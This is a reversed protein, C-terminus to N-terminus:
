SGPQRGNLDAEYNVVIAEFTQNIMTVLDAPAFAEPNGGARVLFQQGAFSLSFWCLFLCHQWDTPTVFESFEKAVGLHRRYLETAAQTGHAYQSAFAYHVYREEQDLAQLMQRVNPVKKPQFAKRYKSPLAAAVAGHFRHLTDAMGAFFTNDRGISSLFTATDSYFAERKACMRLWRMEREYPDEPQLMWRVTIGTEFAARAMVMAGPLLVLDHRALMTVAEINRIVLALMVHAEDIAEWAGMSPITSCGASFRMIVGDLADAAARIAATPPIQIETM